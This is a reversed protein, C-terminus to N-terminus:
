LYYSHCKHDFVVDCFRLSTILILTRPPAPDPTNLLIKPTRRTEAAPIGCLGDAFNKRWVTGPTGCNNSASLMSISIRDLVTLPNTDSLTGLAHQIVRFVVLVLVRSGAVRRGAGATALSGGWLSCESGRHEARCGILRVGGRARCRPTELEAALWIVAVAAIIGANDSAWGYRRRRRHRHRPTIASAFGSSRAM